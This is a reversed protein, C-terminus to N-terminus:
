LTSVFTPSSHALAWPPPHLWSGRDLGGRFMRRREPGTRQARHKPSPCLSRKEGEAELLPVCAKARESSPFRWSPYDAAGFSSLYSETLWCPPDIDKGLNQLDQLLETSGPQADMTRVSGLNGEQPCHCLKRLFHCLEEQHTEIDNKLIWPYRLCM